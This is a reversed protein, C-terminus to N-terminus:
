GSVVKDIIVYRQGGNDRLMIVTEDVKLANHIKYKKKQPANDPDMTMEIDYDTVNRTLVLFEKTLELKQDVLVKLPSVSLVKGYVLKMPKSAEISQLAVNQVNRVIDVMNRM